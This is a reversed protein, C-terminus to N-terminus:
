EFPLARERRPQELDAELEGVSLEAVSKLPRERVSPGAARTPGTLLRMASATAPSASAGVAAPCPVLPHSKAAAM